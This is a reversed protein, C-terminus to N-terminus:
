VSLPSSKQADTTFLRAVAGIDDVVVLLSVFTNRGVSLRSARRRQDVASVVALRSRSVVALRSQSVV